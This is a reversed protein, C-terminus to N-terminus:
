VVSKRDGLRASTELEQINMMAGGDGVICVVQRNGGALKAGIAAPFGYGMAMVGHSHFLRQRGNLKLSQHTAICAVGVDTVVIADDALQKGLDEIFAYANVGDKSDRYEPQMVPYSRKWALCLDRWDQIDLPPRAQKTGALIARLMVTLFDGVDCEVCMNERWRDGNAADKGLERRDIDVVIRKANPAYLKPAHGTQPISLRTGLVILLDCNQVALNGARDGMIGPRGIILDNDTDFLDVGTWSTVVPIRLQEIFTALRFEAGALHIGNGAIILPRKAAVIMEIARVIGHEGVKRSSSRPPDFGVLREADIEAAQVDLPIEIFVPGPRDSIAVYVARELERRITLPDTITAAGKTIPRMMDVMPLANTGLQRMAPGVMDTTVQGAIILMPISDVFAGAVGTITNSGGPGATVHVVGIKNTVRADAEAAMAAAQEHHMAIFQIGPHHCIADNLHMAGAGVVGYVRRSISAVFDAVYQALKM